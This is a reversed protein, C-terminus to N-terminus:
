RIAKLSWQVLLLDSVCLCRETATAAQDTVSVTVLGNDAAVIKHNSLSQDGYQLANITTAKGSQDISFLNIGSASKDQGVAVFQQNNLPVGDFLQLGSFTHCELSDGAGSFRMMASVPTGDSQQIQGLWLFDHAATEYVKAINWWGSFRKQWVIEGTQGDAYVVNARDGGITKGILFFHGDDTVILDNLAIDLSDRYTKGWQPTGASDYTIINMTGPQTILDSYSTLGVVFGGHPLECIRRAYNYHHARYMRTWLTDGDANLRLIWVQTLGPTL